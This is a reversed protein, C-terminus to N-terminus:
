PLNMDMPFLTQTIQKRDDAYINTFKRHLLRIEYECYMYICM